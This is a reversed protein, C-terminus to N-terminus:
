FSDDDFIKRLGGLAQTQYRPDDLLPQSAFPTKSQYCGFAKLQSEVCAGNVYVRGSGQQLLAEAHLEWSDFVIRSVSAGVRIKNQFADLYKNSFYAMVNIDTNAVLFYARAAALYHAQGDNNKDWGPYTVFGYPVGNAQETVQPSFLLTFAASELPMEV